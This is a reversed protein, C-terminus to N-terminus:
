RLLLFSCGGVVGIMAVCACALVVVSFRAPGPPYPIQESITTCGARRRALELKLSEEGRAMAWRHNAAFVPKFAFSLTRLLSKDARIKWDYIANVWSGEQVLRWIERGNFDGHAELTFGRPHRSEVVRLTWHLTHPLWGRTHLHVIKGTGDEKGPQLTQVELYVSPWWRPLSATDTLIASVEEVTGEVRWRSIFHYENSSMCSLSAELQQV